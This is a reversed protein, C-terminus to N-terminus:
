GVWDTLPPATAIILFAEGGEKEKGSRMVPQMVVREAALETVTLARVAAAT